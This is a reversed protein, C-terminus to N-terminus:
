LRLESQVPSTAAQTAGTDSLASSVSGNKWGGAQAGISDLTEIARAHHTIAIVRARALSRFQFILVDLSELLDDIRDARITGQAMNARRILLGLKSARDLMLPGM